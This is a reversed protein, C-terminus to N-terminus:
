KKLGDLPKLKAAALAPVVAAILVMILSTLAVALFENFDTKVPLSNIYYVEPDLHISYKKAVFCLLYGLGIGSITGVIGILLGEIIFILSIDRNTAGLTKLVSIGKRKEIVMMTLTAVVTFACLLFAISFCIFMALKELKLASYLNANLEQWDQVRYDHGLIKQIKNRVARANEIDKVKIRLGDIKNNKGLFEKAVEINIYIDHFDQKYMGSYFIAGVRFPRVKPIPGTPGIDGIPSIINIDDGVFVRLASAMERGIIVGPLTKNSEKELQALFPDEEEPLSDKIIKDPDIDLISRINDSESSPLRKEEHVAKNEKEDGSKTINKKDINKIEKYLEKDDINKVLKMFRQESEYELDPMIKEPYEIYGLKGEDITYTHLAIVKRAENIRIGKVSADAINTSSSLMVESEVFGMVGIVDEVKSLKKMLQQYNEIGGDPRDIVIHATAAIIKQKLDDGFGGMVSLVTPLGATSITVAWLAAIASVTIYGSKYGKLHRVAVYLQIISLRKGTKELTWLLFRMVVLDIGLTPFQALVIIGLVKLIQIYDM